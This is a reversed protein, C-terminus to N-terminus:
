LKSYEKDTRQLQSLIAWIWMLGAFKGATVISLFISIWFKGSDQKWTYIWGFIGFFIALLVADFKNKKYKKTKQM